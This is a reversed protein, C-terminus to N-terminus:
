RVYIRHLTHNEGSSATDDVEWRSPEGTSKAEGRLGWHNVNGKYFTFRTMAEAGQDANAGTAAAPLYASHGTLPTFVQGIGQCSRAPLHQAPSRLRIAHVTM